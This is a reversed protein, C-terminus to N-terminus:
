IPRLWLFIICSTIHGLYGSGTINVYGLLIYTGYVSILTLRYHNVSKLRVVEMLDLAHITPQFDRNVSFFEVRFISLKHSSKKIWTELSKTLFAIVLVPAFLHLMSSPDCYSIVLNM